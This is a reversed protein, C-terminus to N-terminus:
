KKFSSIKADWAKKGGKLNFVNVYGLLILKQSAIQGMSGTDSYVVIRVSKDQPLESQREAIKNYAIYLDTGKIFKGPDEDVNLFYFSHREKLQLMSNLTEPSINRYTSEKSIMSLKGNEELVSKGEFYMATFTIAFLTLLALFLKKFNEKNKVEM